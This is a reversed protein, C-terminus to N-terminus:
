TIPPICSEREGGGWWGNWEVGVTLIRLSSPTTLPYAVTCLPFEIDLCVVAHGDDYRPQSFSCPNKAASPDFISDNRNCQLYIYKKKIGYM